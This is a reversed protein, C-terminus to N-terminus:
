GVHASPYFSDLLDILGALKESFKPNQAKWNYLDSTAFPWYHHPQNGEADPPGTARLPLITSDAAPPPPNSGRLGKDPLHRAEGQPTEAERERFLM